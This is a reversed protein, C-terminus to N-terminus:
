LSSSARRRAALRGAMLAYAHYLGFKARRSISDLLFFKARLQSARSRRPPVTHIDPLIARDLFTRTRRPLLEAMASELGLDGFLRSTQRMAGYVARVIQWRRALPIVQRVLAPCRQIMLYFDVYRILPSTFEDKAMSLAHYAFAHLPALRYSALGDLAYSERERWIAEYDVSHRVRQIFSHHLDVGTEPGLYSRENYSRLLTVAGGSQVFHFGNRRLIADVEGIAKPPVLLDVDLMPRLEPRAYLRDAYDAGKLVIFPVDALWTCLSRATARLTRARAQYLRLLARHRMLGSAVIPPLASPEEYLLPLLSEGAAAAIFADVADSEPPWSRGHLSEVARWVQVPIMAAREPATADNYLNGEAM